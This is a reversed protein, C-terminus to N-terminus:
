KWGGIQKCYEDYWHRSKEQEAVLKRQTVNLQETLTDILEKHDEYLVVEGNVSDCLYANGYGSAGLDYRDIM